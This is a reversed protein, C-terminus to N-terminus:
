DKYVSAGLTVIIFLLGIFLCYFHKDITVIDTILNGSHDCILNLVAFFLWVTGVVLALLLVVGVVAGFTVLAGVGLDKILSMATTTTTQHLHRISGLALSAVVFASIMFWVYMGLIVFACDALLLLAILARFWFLKKM